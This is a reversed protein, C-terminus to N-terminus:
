KKGSTMAELESFTPRNAPDVSRRAFEACTLPSDGRAFTLIATKMCTLYQHEARIQNEIGQALPGFVGYALLVGLFTGVLAAAVKHGVVAAEGGISGMTIVVGLIAAVIGFGPMADAVRALLGPVIMSADYRTELDVELVESLDHPEVAGTLVVKMTDALFTLGHPTSLFFPYDTFFDSTEPEEVHKELAVLGERRALQFLQYFMRLLEEYAAKDYPNGKVLGRVAHFTERLVRPPNGILTAGVAAGTIIIFESFQLLVAVKGGHMTYGILLSAFLVVVGIIVFM